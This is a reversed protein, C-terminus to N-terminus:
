DVFNNIRDMKEDQSLGDWASLMGQIFLEKFDNNSEAEIVLFATDSGLYDPDFNVVKINPKLTDFLECVHDTENCYRTARALKNVRTCFEKMSMNIINDLMKNKMQELNNNEM